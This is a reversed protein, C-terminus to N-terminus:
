HSQRHRQLCSMRLAVVCSAQRLPVVVESLGWDQSARWSAVPAQILDGAAGVGEVAQSSRRGTLLHGEEEEEAAAEGQYARYWQLPHDEEEEVAAAVM